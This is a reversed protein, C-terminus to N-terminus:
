LYIDQPHLSNVNGYCLTLVQDTKMWSIWVEANVAVIVKANMTPVNIVVDVPMGLSSPEKKATM